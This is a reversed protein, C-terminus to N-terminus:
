KRLEGFLRSMLSRKPKVDKSDATESLIPEYDVPELAPVPPPIVADSSATKPNGLLSATIPKLKPTVHSSVPLVKLSSDSKYDTSLESEEPLLQLTPVDSESSVEPPIQPPFTASSSTPSLSTPPPSTSLVQQHAPSFSSCAGDVVRYGALRLAQEAQRRVGWDCDAIACQLGKIVPQGICVRNRRIQDGIEDAAKQRVSEHSDNLAHVFATMIEPHSVCDFHDGLRHVARRRDSAYCGTMSQHILQAIVKCEEMSYCAAGSGCGTVCGDGCSDTGVCCGAAAGCSPEVGCSPEASCFLEPASCDSGLCATPACCSAPGCAEQGCCKTASVRRQHNYIMTYSPRAIVPECALQPCGDSCGKSHNRFLGASSVDVALLVLLLYFTSKM